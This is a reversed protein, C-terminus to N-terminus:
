DHGKENLAKVEKMSLKSSAVRVKAVRVRSDQGPFVDLIRGLLWKTPPLDDDKITVLQGPKLNSVPSKWKNRQQLTM